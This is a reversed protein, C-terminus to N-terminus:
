HQREDAPGRNTRHDKSLMISETKKVVVIHGAEFKVEVSGYFRSTELQRLMAVLENM